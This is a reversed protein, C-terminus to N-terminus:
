GARRGVRGQGLRTGRAAQRLVPCLPMRSLRRTPFTVPSPAIV